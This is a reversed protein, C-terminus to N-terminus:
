SNKIEQRCDDCFVKIRTGVKPDKVRAMIPVRDFVVERGCVICPAAGSETHGPGAIHAKWKERDTTKFSHRFCEYSGGEMIDASM